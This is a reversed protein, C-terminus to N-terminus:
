LKSNAETGRVLGPRMVAFSMAAMGTGAIFDRRSIEGDKKRITKGQNKM